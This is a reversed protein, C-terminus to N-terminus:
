YSRYNGFVWMVSLVMHLYLFMFKLHSSAQLAWVGGWFGFEQVPEMVSKEIEGTSNLISLYGICCSWQFERSHLLMVSYWWHLCMNLTNVICTNLHNCYCCCKMGQVARFSIFLLSIARCRVAQIISCDWYHQVVSRVCQFYVWV